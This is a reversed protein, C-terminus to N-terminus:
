MAMVPHGILTDPVIMDATNTMGAASDPETIINAMLVKMLVTPAKEPIYVTTLTAMPNM